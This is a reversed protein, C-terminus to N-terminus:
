AAGLLLGFMQQPQRQKSQREDSVSPRQLGLRGPLGDVIGTYMESDVAQLEFVFEILFARSRALLAPEPQLKSGAGDDLIERLLRCSCESLARIYFVIKYCNRASIVIFLIRNPYHLFRGLQKRFYHPVCLSLFTSHLM